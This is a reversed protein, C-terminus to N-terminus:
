CQLIHTEERHGRTKDPLAAQLLNHPIERTTAKVKFVSM